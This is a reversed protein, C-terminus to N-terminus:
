GGYVWTNDFYLNIFNPTLEKLKKVFSEPSEKAYNIAADMGLDKVLWNCKEDTGAIAIVKCGMIKLIQAAVMGTAGAAGSVVAVEGAKPKLVDLVGFFATMGTGGLVSMALPSPVGKQIRWGDRPEAIGYETWGLPSNVRDGVKFNPNKSAVVQALSGGTMVNGLPIPPAYGRQKPNLTVARM